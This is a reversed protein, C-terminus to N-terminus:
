LYYTCGLRVQLGMEGSACTNSSPRWTAGSLRMTILLLSQGGRILHHKNAPPARNPEAFRKKKKVPGEGAGWGGVGGSGGGGGGCGRGLCSSHDSQLM